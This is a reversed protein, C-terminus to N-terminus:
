STPKSGTESSPPAIWKRYSLWGVAGAAVIAVIPGAIIFTPVAVAVTALVPKILRGNQPTPSPESM